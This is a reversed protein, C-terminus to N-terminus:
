IQTRMAYAIASLERSAEEFADEGYAQALGRDAREVNLAKMAEVRASVAHMDAQLAFLQALQRIEGEHM